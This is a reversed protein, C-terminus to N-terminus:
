FDVPTANLELRSHQGQQGILDVEFRGASVDGALRRALQDALLEAQEPEVLEPLQRGVLDVRDVGALRAFMPNAYLIVDKYLLISEHVADGVHAFLNSQPVPAPAPAAAPPQALGRMRRWQWVCLGLLVAAIVAFLLSPLGTTPM